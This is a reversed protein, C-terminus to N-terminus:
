CRSLGMCIFRSLVRCWFLFLIFDSFNLDLKLSNSIVYLKNSHIRQESSLHVLRSFQPELFAAKNLMWDRSEESNSM